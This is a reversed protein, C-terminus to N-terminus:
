FKSKAMELNPVEITQDFDSFTVDYTQHCETDVMKKANYKSDLHISVPTYDEKVMVDMTIEKFSPYDDLSGFKKMQIRVNTTAKVPDVKLTFVYNEGSKAKSVELLSDGYVNYGEIANDFPYVGYVDLYANLDSLAFEGDTSDRYLAKEEHYYCEHVTNVLSSHSENKLYSYDSKILTVDITQDYNIFLISAATKGSTVSKYSSFSSLKKLYHSPFDRIESDPLDSVMDPKAISSESSIVSSEESDLSDSEKSESSAQSEKSSETKSSTPASSYTERTLTETQGGCSFLLASATFLIFPYVSKKM